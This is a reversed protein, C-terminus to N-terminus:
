HAAGVMRAISKFFFDPGMYGTMREVEVGDRMLVITPVMQVSSALKLQDAAPDNLDIFRIPLEAARKSRQYTPLVDRRFVACYTCNPAELVILEQSVSGPRVAAGDRAAQGGQSLVLGLLGAALM